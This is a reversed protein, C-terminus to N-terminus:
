KNGKLNVVFGDINRRKVSKLYNSAADHSGFPGLMVKYDPDGDKGLVMSVFVNNFDNDLKDVKKMMNDHKSMSAVQIAFGATANPKNIKLSVFGNRQIPKNLVSKSTVVPAPTNKRISTSSTNNRDTKNGPLNRYERPTLRSEEFGKPAIYEIPDPMPVLRVTEETFRKDNTNNPLTEIDRKLMSGSSGLQVNADRVQEVKVRVDNNTGVNLKAAAAKSIDTVHNNVFPGRDNIRVVVSKGNDTRTIKVLTGFPLSRHAATYYNHNFIEGSATRGGQFNSSYVSAIGYEQAASVSWAILSVLVTLVTKLNSM